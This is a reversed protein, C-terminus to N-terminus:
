LKRKGGKKESLFSLHDVTTRGVTPWWVRMAPHHKSSNRSQTEIKQKLFSLLTKSVARNGLSPSTEGMNNCPPLHQSQKEFLNLQSAQPQTDPIGLATFTGFSGQPLQTAPVNVHSTRLGERVWLSQKQETGLFALLCAGHWAGKWKSDKQDRIELISPQAPDQKIAAFPSYGLREHEPAQLHPHIQHCFHPSFSVSTASLGLYLEEQDLTSM